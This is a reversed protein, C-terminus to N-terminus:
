SFTYKTWFDAEIDAATGDVLTFGDAAAVTAYHTVREHLPPVVGFGEDTWWEAFETWVSEGEGVGLRHAIADAVTHTTATPTAAGALYHARVRDEALLSGNYFAFEALAGNWYNGAARRGVDLSAAGTLNSASQSAITDTGSLNGDIYVSCLGDRDYTVAVHHWANDDLRAGVSAADVAGNNLRAVIQGQNNLFMDWDTKSALFVSSATTPHKFWVELTFDQLGIDLAAADAITVYESSAAAFQVATDGTNPPGAEGLTPTNTYTGDLNNATADEATVGADEGLRWYLTPNDALVKDTYAM